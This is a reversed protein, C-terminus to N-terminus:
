CGGAVKISEAMHTGATIISRYLNDVKEAIEKTSGSTIKKITTLRHKKDGPNIREPSYGCFFNENYKLGSGEELLPVCIEETAGPYVTSEYIVIDEAALLPAIIKSANILPELDPKHFQDVPTPVTVIYVDCSEIDHSSNTFELNSSKEFDSSAVELTIDYGDKLQNIRKKNTDFGVTNFIKGFEIALPLGVYGLGVIAIRPESMAPYVRSVM